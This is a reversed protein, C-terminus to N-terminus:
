DGEQEDTSMRAVAPAPPEPKADDWAGLGELDIGIMLDGIEARTLTLESVPRGFRITAGGAALEVRERAVAEGDATM